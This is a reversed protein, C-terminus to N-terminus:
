EVSPWCFFGGASVFGTSTEVHGGPPNYPKVAGNELVGLTAVKSNLSNRYLQKWHLQKLLTIVIVALCM